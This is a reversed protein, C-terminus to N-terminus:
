APHAGFRMAAELYVATAMVVEDVPVQENTSHAVDISGPGYIVAPRDLNPADTCYPVAVMPAAVGSVSKHAAEVVRVVRADAPTDLPPNDWTPGIVEYTIAPDLDALLEALEARVTYANEGPLIRRDIDLVCRDPVISVVTGGSVVGPSYSGLGALPHPDAAALIEPYRDLRGIIEAMHSIANIGLGPRSSHAAKGHVIIQMGIEGRHCPAVALSTPEGVIVGDCWPGTRGAVVSGAMRHEEDALGAVVVDGPLALGQENVVDAVELFAALGAKMDCAGRGYVNGDALRAEFAADYGEVGVTDTHGALMLAPGDGGPIRGFVNPRGPAVDEILVECGAAELRATMYRAIADEGQGATPEVDGPNVSPIAILDRLNTVVRNPDIM